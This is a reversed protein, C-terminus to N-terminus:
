GRFLRETVNRRGHLLRLIHVTGGGSNFRYFNLYPAVVWIRM